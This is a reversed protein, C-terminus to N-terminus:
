EDSSFVASITFFNTFVITGITYDNVTVKTMAVKTVFSLWQLQLLQLYQATIM